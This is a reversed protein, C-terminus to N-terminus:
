TTCHTTNCHTATHQLTNHHLQGCGKQFQDLNTKDFEDRQACMCHDGIGEGLTQRLGGEDAVAADHHALNLMHKCLLGGEM